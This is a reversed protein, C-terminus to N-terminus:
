LKFILYKLINEVDTTTQDINHFSTYEVVGSGNSAPILAALPIDNLTAGAQTCATPNGCQQVNGSILVVAPAGVSSMLGWHLAHASSNNPFNINVTTANLYQSLGQDVVNGTLMQPAYGMLDYTDFPMNVNHVSSLWQIENSAILSVFMFAWDSAYLSGGQAVFNQLNTTITATNAGFNLEAYGGDSGVVRGAACDIFIVNYQQMESFNLLLSEGGGPGSWGSQTGNYTTYTFGVDTLLTEIHDGEGTIVALKSATSNFCLQNTPITTTGGPAVTISFTQTFSGATATLTWTGAPVQLSFQGQSNTTTTVDFAQGQCTGKVEVKAGAVLTNVDPACIVGTVTGIGCMEGNHPPGNGGGDPVGGDYGNDPLGADHHSGTAADAPEDNTGADGTEFAVCAPDHPHAECYAAQKLPSLDCECGSFLIIAVLLRNRM